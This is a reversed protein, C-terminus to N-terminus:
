DRGDMSLVAGCSMAHFEVRREEREYRNMDFRHIFRARAPGPDLVRILQVLGDRRADLANMAFSLQQCDDTLVSLDGPFGPIKVVKPDILGESKLEAIYTPDVWLGPQLTTNAAPDASPDTTTGGSPVDVGGSPSQGSDSASPAGPDTAGGNDAGGTPSGEECAERDEENSCDVREASAVSPALAHAGVLAATTLFLAALIRGRLISSPDWTKAM